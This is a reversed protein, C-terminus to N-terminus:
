PGRRQLWRRHWRQCWRQHWRRSGRMNWWTEPVGEPTRPESVPALGPAVRVVVDAATTGIVTAAGSPSSRPLFPLLLIFGYFLLFPPSFAPCVSTELCGHLSTQGVPHLRMGRPGPRQRCKASPRRAEPQERPGRTRPRRILRPRRMSCWRDLAPSNGCGSRCLSMRTLHYRTMMLSSARINGRAPLRPVPVV